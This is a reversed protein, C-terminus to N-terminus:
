KGDLIPTVEQLPKVLGAAKMADFMAQVQAKISANDAAEAHTIGNTGALQMLTGQVISTALNLAPNGKAVGEVAQIAIPAIVKVIKSFFSKM